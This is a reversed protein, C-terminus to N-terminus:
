SEAGDSRGSLYGTPATWAFPEFWAELRQDVLPDAGPLPSAVDSAYLDGM